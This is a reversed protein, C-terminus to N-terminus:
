EKSLWSASLVDFPTTCALKSSPGQDDHERAAVDGAARTSTRAEHPEREGNHQEKHEDTARRPAAPERGEHM